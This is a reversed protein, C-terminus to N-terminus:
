GFGLWGSVVEVAMGYNLGSDNQEKIKCEGNCKESQWIIIKNHNHTYQSNIGVSIYSWPKLLILWERRNGLSVFWLRETLIEETFSHVFSPLIILQKMPINYFLMDYIVMTSHLFNYKFNNWFASLLNSNSDTNKMKQETFM